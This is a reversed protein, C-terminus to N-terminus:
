SQFWSLQGGCMLIKRWRSFYRFRLYGETVGDVDGHLSDALEEPTVTEEYQANFNQIKQFLYGSMTKRLMGKVDLSILVNDLLFLIVEFIVVAIAIVYATSLPDNPVILGGHASSNLVNDVLYINVSLQFYVNFNKMQDFVIHVVTRWRIGDLHFMFRCFGDFLVFSNISTIGEEGQAVQEKFDYNPFAEEDFVKVRMVGLDAGIICGQPESLKLKFELVPNWRPADLLPISITAEEQGADMHVVGSRHCFNTGDKATDDVTTYSFSIPTSKRGLRMVTCEVVEDDSSVIVVSINFQVIDLLGSPSRPIEVCDESIFPLAIYTSQADYGSEGSWLAM